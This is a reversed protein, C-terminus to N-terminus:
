SLTLKIRCYATKMEPLGHRVILPENHVHVCRLKSTYEHVRVHALKSKVQCLHQKIGGIRPFFRLSSSSVAPGWM